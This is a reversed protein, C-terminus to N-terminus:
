RKRALDDELTVPGPPRSRGAGIGPLVRGSRGAPVSLPPKSPHAREYRRREEFLVIKVLSDVDADRILPEATDITPDLLEILSLMATRLHNENPFSDRIAGERDEDSNANALEAYMSEISALIPLPMSAHSPPLREVTRLKDLVQQRAASEESDGSAEAESNDFLLEDEEVNIPEFGKREEPEEGAPTASPLSEAQAVAETPKEADKAPAPSKAEAAVAPPKAAGHAAAAVAPAAAVKETSGEGLGLPGAIKTVAVKQWLQELPLYGVLHPLTVTDILTKETLPRGARGLTLAHEVVKQLEDLPLQKAIERYSIGDGLDELKLVGEALAREMIFTMRALARGHAADERRTMWFAGETLFGWLRPAGLYRVRDDPGYVELVDKADTLGEALAITLDEAASAVSKKRALKEHVKAAKVLLSARLDDAKALSEILADAPFHRLFDEPTRWGAEFAHVMVQALFREKGTGLKSDFPKISKDAAANTSM